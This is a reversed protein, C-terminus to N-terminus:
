IQSRSLEYFQMSLCYVSNKSSEKNAFFEIERRFDRLKEKFIPLQDKNISFINSAFERKDVEQDYLAEFAKRLLQTHFKKLSASPVDNPTALFKFRDVLKGDEEELLELSKMRLIAEIVESGTIGLVGAIWEPDNKFDELYTLELIAFHWWDSIVKFYELQIVTFVKAQAKYVQIKEKFQAKDKSSRAHMSGVSHFFWKAKQDDLKLKECILKAAEISLGQKKNLIQCMRPASIGLDRAYARLSYSENILKRRELEESLLDHYSSYQM